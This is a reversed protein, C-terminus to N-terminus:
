RPMQRRRAMQEEVMKQYSKLQDATLIPKLEAEKQKALGMVTKRQVATDSIKRVDEMKKAYKLNIAEVKSEQAPTLKLDEKMKETQRKSREEPTANGRGMGPMQAHMTTVTISLLIALAMAYRITKKM